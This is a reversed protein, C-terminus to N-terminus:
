MFVQQVYTSKHFDDCLSEFGSCDFSTAPCYGGWVYPYGLYKEAETIMAAFTEDSLYEEPIDYDTYDKLVSANPYQSQPFL